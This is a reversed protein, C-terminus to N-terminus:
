PERDHAPSVGITSGRAVVLGSSRTRLAPFAAERPAHLGKCPLSFSSLGRSRAHVYTGASLNPDSTRAWYRGDNEGSLWASKRLASTDVSWRNIM